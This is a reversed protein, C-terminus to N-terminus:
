LVRDLVYMVDQFINFFADFIEFLLGIPSFPREMEFFIAGIGLHM